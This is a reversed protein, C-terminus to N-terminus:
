TKVNVSAALIIITLVPVTSVFAFLSLFRPPVVLLFSILDSQSETEWNTYNSLSGKPMKCNGSLQM